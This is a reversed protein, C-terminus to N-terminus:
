VSKHYLPYPLERVTSTTVMDVFFPRTKTRPMVDGFYPSESTGRVCCSAGLTLLPSLDLSLDGLAVVGAYGLLRRTMVELGAVNDVDRLVRDVLV